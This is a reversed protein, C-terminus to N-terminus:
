SGVAVDDVDHYRMLLSVSVYVPDKRDIGMPGLAIEISIPDEDHHRLHIPLDPMDRLGGMDIRDKTYERLPNWGSVPLLNPGGGVRLERGFLPIASEGKASMAMEIEELKDEDQIIAKINQVADTSRWDEHLWVQIGVVQLARRPVGPVIDGFAFPFHLSDGRIVLRKPEGFDERNGVLGIVPSKTTSDPDVFSISSIRDTHVPVPQPFPVVSPLRDLGDLLLGDDLLGDDLEDEDLDVGTTELVVDEIIQEEEQEELDDLAGSVLGHLDDVGEAALSIMHSAGRLAATRIRRLLPM